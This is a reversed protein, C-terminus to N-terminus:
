LDCNVLNCDRSGELLPRAPGHCCLISLLVIEKLFLKSVRCQQLALELKIRVAHNQQLFTVAESCAKELNNVERLLTLRRAIPSRENRDIEEVIRQKKNPSESEGGSSTLDVVATNVLDKNTSAM